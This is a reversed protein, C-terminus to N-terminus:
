CWCVLKVVFALPVEGPLFCLLLSLGVFFLGLVILFIIKVPKKKKVSVNKEKKEATTVRTPTPKKIKKEEMETRSPISKKVKKEETSVTKKPASKVREKKPQAARNVSAKDVSATQPKRGRRAPTSSEVAVSKDFATGMPNRKSASSKKQPTKRGEKTPIKSEQKIKM